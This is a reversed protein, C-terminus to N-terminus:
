LGRPRESQEPWPIVVHTPDKIRKAQFFAYREVSSARQAFHKENTALDM